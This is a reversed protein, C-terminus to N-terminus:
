RCAAQRVVNKGSMFDGRGAHNLGAARELLAREVVETDFLVQRGARAHFAVLPRVRTDSRLPLPRVNLGPGHPNEGTM